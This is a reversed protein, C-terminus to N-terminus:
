FDGGYKPNFRTWLLQSSMKVVPLRFQNELLQFIKNRM